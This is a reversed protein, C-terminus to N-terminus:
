REAVDQDAGGERSDEDEKERRFTAPNQRLSEGDCFTRIRNGASDHGQLVNGFASRDPMQFVSELHEIATRATESATIEDVAEEVGSSKESSSESASGHMNQCDSLTLFILDLAGAEPPVVSLEVMVGDEGSSEREDDSSDHDDSVFKPDFEIQMYISPSNVMRDGQRSVAHLIVRRYPISFGVSNESNWLTLCLESIYVDGNISAVTEDGVKVKPTFVLLCGKECHKVAGIAVSPLDHIIEVSM